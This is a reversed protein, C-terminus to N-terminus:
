GVGHPQRAVRVLPVPPVALPLRADVDVVQALLLAHDGVPRIDTVECSMVAVADTLRPGWEDLTWAGVAFGEPGRPRSRSAFHAAVQRHQDGLVNVTCRGSATLAEIASSRERLAIALIPPEDSVHLVASVTLAHLGTGVM